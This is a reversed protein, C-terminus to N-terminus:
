IYDYGSNAKFSLISSVYGKNNSHQKYSFCPKSYQSFLPNHVQEDNSM